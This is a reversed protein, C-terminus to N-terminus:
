GQIFEWEVPVDVFKKTKSLLRVKGPAVPEIAVIHGFKVPVAAAAMIYPISFDEAKKFKRCTAIGRQAIPNDAVSEALGYAFNATVEEVGLVGVHRGNWPPYHRGGNSLWLVTSALKRPDKLAFWVRRSRPYVAASWAFPKSQESCLMVLDEFGRRAPYVTLDAMDGNQMQVRSLDTFCAGPKLSSYGGKAPDEFLDPFVQGFKFKSTSILGVEGGSWSLMAHHGFCMRGSMGHITHKIYIAQHGNRLFIEKRVRGPRVSCEMDATLHDRGRDKLEWFSNATEGHSPYKEGRYSRANAGFPMCFLDGRQVHQCPPAGPIAKEGHWPAVAMPSFRKEGCFFTVPGMHGGIQTVYVEVQENALRWSPQNFITKTAPGGQEDTQTTKIGRKTM